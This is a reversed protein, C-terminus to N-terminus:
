IGVFARGAKVANSKKIANYTGEYKLAESAKKQGVMYDVKTLSRYQKELNLRTITDQLEKNSMQNIDKRRAAKLANSRKSGTYNRVINVGNELKGRARGLQEPTRRVGWKMGKIGHHMLYYNQAM